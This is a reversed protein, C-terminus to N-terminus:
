LGEYDIMSSKGVKMSKDSSYVLADSRDRIQDCYKCTYDSELVKHELFTKQHKRIRDGLIIKKISEDNVNGMINKRDFDFCCPVVTGDTCIQIDNCNMVRPCVKDIPTLCMNANGGWNHPEWIDVRNCRPEYYEKWAEMEHKNEPMVLFTMITYVGDNGRNEELFIDVNRKVEEFVLSGRHVSEYTDKSFGYMSFKIINFYKSVIRRNKENLLHGTNITSIYMDPCVSRVYKLKEELGTDCLCDGFGCIGIKRCGGDVLEDIVKRFTEFSMNEFKHSFDDRPCMICNAGCNTTNEIMAYMNEFM